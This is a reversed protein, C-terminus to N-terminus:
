RRHAEKGSKILENSIKINEPSLESIYMHDEIRRLTVLSKTKLNEVLLQKISASGEKLNQNVM